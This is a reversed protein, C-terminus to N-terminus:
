LHLRFVGSKFVMNEQVPTVLYVSTLFQVASSILADTHAFIMPGVEHANTILLYRFVEFQLEM